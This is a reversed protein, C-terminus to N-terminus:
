EVGSATSAPSTPSHTSAHPMASAVAYQVVRGAVVVVVAREAPRPEIEPLITDPIALLDNIWILFVCWSDRGDLM